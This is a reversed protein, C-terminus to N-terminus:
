KCIGWNTLVTALDIGNVVGDGNLDGSCSMPECVDLVGNGNADLSPNADIECSDIQGNSNCDLSPNNAIDIADDTGNGDCDNVQGCEVQRYTVSMIWDGSVGLACADVWGLGQAFIANKGAQCGNGDHNPAASSPTMNNAIRLSVTFPGGNVIRSGTGPASTLDFENISGDTMVPGEVEWQFAGPNPLGNPYIRLADELSQGQGGFVSSWGIRIKTIEIPYHSPPANLIVACEENAVFGPVAVTQGIINFNELIEDPCPAGGETTFGSQVIRSSALAGAHSTLTFEREGSPTISEVPAASVQGLAAEAGVTVLAACASMLFLPSSLHRSM